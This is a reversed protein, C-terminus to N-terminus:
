MTFGRIVINANNGIENLLSFVRSASYLQVSINTIFDSPTFGGKALIAWDGESFNIIYTRHVKMDCLVRKPKFKNM